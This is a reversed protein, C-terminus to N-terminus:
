LDIVQTAIKKCFMEDHEVFLMTPQYGLLLKEIQIRSLVDIFNLPEDWIYLHAPTILSSAILLKKKQGESFDSIDKEFQVRELGLCRLVSCLLSRDTGQSECFEEISGKLQSTDQSVYSIVLGSATSFSGSQRFRVSVQHGCKQLLEKILSSKGCGNSGCLAIRDGKNIQMDLGDIVFSDSGEYGLSHDKIDVLTSKHHVLQSLRLDGLKELDCLLGEKEEIQRDIRKEIQKVRSQMKKTKAGIFSRTSICRDHEKIPDYGIKSRESKDAWEATQKAARRLKRIEKRHKENEAIAFSDRRQKNEWWSSFNGAQVEISKRNLVLVHDTCADLLCRDHSILIFGKKSRLYERVRLRAEADLHNTPEDILLFENEGSFLLALLVKTREGPSLTCFPRYLIGGDEGLDDLESMVRWIECGPKIQELFESATLKMQEDTVAYPFYEFSTSASICGKYQHEGLLLKLFTTKGKGNRGIFGLKWDTDIAFSVNEFINDFSGDYNFTLANVSIQSMSMGGESLKSFLFLQGNGLLKM